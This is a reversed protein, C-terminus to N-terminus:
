DLLRAGSAGQSQAEPAPMPPPTSSRLRGLFVISIALLTAGIPFLFLGAATSFLTTGISASLARPDSVGSSGLADFAHMMGIVTGFLGILPSLSLLTGVVVGTILLGRRAKM